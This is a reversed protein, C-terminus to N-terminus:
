SGKMESTFHGPSPQRAAASRPANAPSQLSTGRRRTSRDERFVPPPAAPTNPELVTEM